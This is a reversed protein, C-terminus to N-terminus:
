DDDEVMFLDSVPTFADSLDSRCDMQYKINTIFQDRAKEYRVAMKVTGEPTADFNLANDINMSQAVEIADQNAGIYAFTWGKAKQTAVLEKIAAGSYKRSSNEYGDTIITVLVADNDNINKRLKNISLGMADFLPTCGLPAYDKTSLHGIKEIPKRDYRCKVGHTGEGEFTVLTVYQHQEPNEKQTRRIGDLTQNLSSLTEDYISHMSGSEDVIILNHVNVSKTTEM